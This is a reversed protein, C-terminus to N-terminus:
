YYSEFKSGTSYCTLYTEDGKFKSTQPPSPQKALLSAASMMWYVSKYLIVSDSAAKGAPQSRHGKKDKLLQGYYVNTATPPLAIPTSLALALVVVMSDSVWQDNSNCRHASLLIKPLTPRAAAKKNEPAKVVAIQAIM